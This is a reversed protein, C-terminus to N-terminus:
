SLTRWIQDTTMNKADESLLRVKSPVLGQIASHMSLSKRSADRDLAITVAPYSRLLRRQDQSLNTGLLAGGVFGDVRAISCASAADEVLVLTSGQGVTMLGSTDGYAKWKPVAGSLSRGIAGQDANTYFLVRDEAPAYKIKVWRNEYAEICGNDRLYQMVRDHRTPESTHEPIRLSTRSGTRRTRELRGRIQDTTRGLSKRGRTDCSAKYCHWLLDGDLNSLSLTKRGGCFPCDVRRHEDSRLRVGSLYELQERYTAM